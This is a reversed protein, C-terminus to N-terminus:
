KAHAMSSRNRAEQLLGDILVRNPSNPGINELYGIAIDWKQFRMALVASGIKLDLSNPFARLFSECITGLGEWPVSRSSSKQIWYALLGVFGELDRDSVVPFSEDQGM